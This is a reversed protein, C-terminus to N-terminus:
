QNLELSFKELTNKLENLKELALKIKPDEGVKQYEDRISINVLQNVSVGTMQKLAQLEEYVDDEFRISISKM